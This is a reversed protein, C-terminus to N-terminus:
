IELRMFSISGVRFSGVIGREILALARFGDHKIEFVWDPDDFPQPVRGLHIPSPIPFQM